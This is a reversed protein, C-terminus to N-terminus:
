DLSHASLFAWIVESADFTRTTSGIIFRPLYQSGGPWTHGAGDVRYFVLDSRSTAGHWTRVTTDSGLTTVQPTPDDGDRAVWASAWDDVGVVDGRGGLQTAVTGGGYPVLPDATGHIELIPVPRGPNCDAAVTVAATGAVQAVAAIRNSLQCALRGSMIAGNSIGTAYVRTPDISARGEIRDIMASLFGVDDANGTAGGKEERGDNWAKGIGSPAAVVFGERDAIAFFGTLRDINDGSGGGGHLEILLPVPTGDLSAPVHLVYSRTTGGFDFRYTWTGPTAIGSPGAPPISLIRRVAVLGVLLAAVVVVALAVVLLRRVLKM